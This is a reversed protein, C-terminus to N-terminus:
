DRAEAPSRSSGDGAPLAADTRRPRPERAMFPLFVGALLLAVGAGVMAGGLTDSLWHAHLYTRSFAMVLVWIVGAITTWISPFIVILAVAITAANAVHGSPFSGFDSLVIIDEPRARGFTHKLIQVVGASAVSAAIFYLAAWPRRLIVLVLAVVIPLVFVGFWGAGLFNMVYSLTSMFHSQWAALTRDWWVDIVFPPDGRFLIWAGLGAACAILVIGVVLFPTRPPFTRNTPAVQQSPGDNREM